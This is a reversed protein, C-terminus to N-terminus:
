SLRHAAKRVTRVRRPVDVLHEEAATRATQAVLDYPQTAEQARFARVRTSEAREALLLADRHDGLASHIRKGAKALTSAATGLLGPAAADVAEAVYRLRRAAKRLEHYGALSGDARKAARRVRRAERRLVRAFVEEAPADPRSVRLDLGSERLLQQRRQARPELSLEVLREHLRRYAAREDGVLRRRADADDVGAAGLAEAADDARVEADRAEGLQRGWETLASRLPALDAPEVVRRLAALVARMRRVRIRHQHVADPEDSLARAESTAVEASASQLIRRAITETSPHEVSM